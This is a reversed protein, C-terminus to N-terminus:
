PTSSGLALKGESNIHWSNGDTDPTVEFMKCHTALAVGTLVQKDASYVAPTITAVPSNGTLPESVNIIKDDLLYVDNDKVVIASGKMYFYTGGHYVGGGTTATNGIITGGYMNFDRSYVFVGGGDNTATNRSITGGSMEFTSSNYVGGGNSATNGSISGSEMTFKGGSNYVGGGQLSATNGSITGGSMKFTSINYVGGGNGTAKNGTISGGSMEFTGGGKNYVGGASIAKNNSITANDIMTFTGGGVFVGGGIGSRGAAAENGSITGGSMTFRGSNVFVGGGQISATNKDDDTTGGITGGSMEFTGTNYVGGGLGIDTGITGTAKNGSITGDSMEFSGTNYVGGGESTATNDQISSDAKMTLIGTSYVGGGDNTATNGSITGDSMKFTGTNYVGGGNGIDTGITGTAENGSITANDSMTFASGTDKVFVGGGNGSAVINGSITGGTMNFEGNNIFVGGGQNNATNNEISSGTEMTLTGDSAIYVGGGQDNATNNKISSGTEMILTGGDIYVGGGYDASGGTLTINQLTVNAKGGVYMVRGHNNANITATQGDKGQITLTLTKDPAINVVSNNDAIEEAVCNGSVNIIFNQTGDNIENIYFVAKDVTGFPYQQSGDNSSDNTSSSSVFFETMPNWKAYLNTDGTFVHESGAAYTAGSGNDATNWGGFSYGSRRLNDQSALQVKKGSFFTKPSPINGYSNGNGDYTVTYQNLSYTESTEESQSGDAYEAYAKITVGIDNEPIGVDVGTPSQPMSTKNYLNITVSQGSQGSMWDQEGDIQYYITADEKPPTLTVSTDHNVPGSPKTFAVTNVVDWKAYLTVGADDSYTAGEAYDQGNGDPSTNWGLFRYGIRTLNGENRALTIDTYQPKNQSAPVSGGTAGNADYKIVYTAPPVAQGSTLTSSSVGEVDVAALTTNSYDTKFQFINLGGVQENPVKSCDAVLHRTGNVTFWKACNPDKEDTISDDYAWYVYGGRDAKWIQGTTVTSYEGTDDNKIIPTPAIPPTNYRLTVGMVQGSSQMTEQRIAEFDVRFDTHELSSDAPNLKIRLMTPDYGELQAKVQVTPNSIRISKDTNSSDGIEALLQYSQPNIIYGTITPTSSASITDVGSDNKQITVDTVEVRGMQVTSSWYELYGLMDKNWYECSALVTVLVFIFVSRVIKIM